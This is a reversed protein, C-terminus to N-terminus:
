LGLLNVPLLVTFAVLFGALTCPLLVAACRVWSTGWFWAWVRALYVYMPVALLLLLFPGVVPLVGLAMGPYTFGLTLCLFALFERSTRRAPAIRRMWRYYLSYTTGWALFPVVAALVVRTFENQGLGDSGASALCIFYLGASIEFFKVADSLRGLRFGRLTEPYPAKLMTWFLVAWRRLAGLKLFTEAVLHTPSATSGMPWGCRSCFEGRDVAGCSDCTAPAIPAAPRWVGTSGNGPAPAAHRPPGWVPRAAFPMGGAPVTPHDRHAYM